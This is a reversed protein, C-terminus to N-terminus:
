KKDKGTCIEVLSLIGITVSIFIIISFIFGWEGIGSFFCKDMLDKVQFLCIIQAASFVLSVASHLRGGGKSTMGALSICLIFAFLLLTVLCFYGINRYKEMDTIFSDLGNSLFNQMIEFLTYSNSVGMFSITYTKFFYLLGGILTLLAIVVPIRNSSILSPSVPAKDTSVVNKPLDHGCKECYVTKSSNSAGCVPCVIKGM